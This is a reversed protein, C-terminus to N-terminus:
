IKIRILDKIFFPFFIFMNGLIQCAKKKIESNREKLGRHLIPIILALSPADIVHIFAPCIM